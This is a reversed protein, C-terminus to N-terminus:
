RPFFISLVHGVFRTNRAATKGDHGGCTDHTHDMPNGFSGRVHISTEIKTAAEGVRAWGSSDSGFHQGLAAEILPFYFDPQSSLGTLRSRCKLLYAQASDRLM